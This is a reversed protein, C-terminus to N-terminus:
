LLAHMMHSSLARYPACCASPLIHPPRPLARFAARRPSATPMLGAHRYLAAPFPLRAALAALRATLAPPRATPAVPRVAPTRCPAVAPACYARCCPATPHPLAHLLWTVPVGPHTLSLLLARCPACCPAPPTCCPVTPALPPTICPSGLCSSGYDSFVLLYALKRVAELCDWVTYAAGM